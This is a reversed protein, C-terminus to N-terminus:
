RFVGECKVDRQRYTEIKHTVDAMKKSVRELYMYMNYMAQFSPNENNRHHVCILVCDYSYFSYIIKDFGQNQCFLATGFM